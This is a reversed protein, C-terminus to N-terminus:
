QALRLNPIQGQVRSIALRETLPFGRDKGFRRAREYLNRAGTPDGRVIMHYDGHSVLIDGFYMMAGLGRANEIWDDPSTDPDYLWLYRPTFPPLNRSWWAVSKSRYYNRLAVDLSMDFRAARQQGSLAIIDVLLASIHVHWWHTGLFLGDRLWWRPDLRISVMELHEDAKYLWKEAKDFEQCQFYLLAILFLSKTAGLHDKVPKFYEESRRAYDLCAQEDGLEYAIEQRMVLARGVGMQGRERVKSSIAQRLLHESQRQSLKAVSVAQEPEGAIVYADALDLYMISLIESPAQADSRARDVCNQLQPIARAPDYRLLQVRALAWDYIYSRSLFQFGTKWGLQRLQRTARLTLDLDTHQALVRRHSEFVIAQDEPHLKLVSDLQQLVDLTPHREGSEIRSVYSRDIGIEAALGQQSLGAAKRYTQIIAGISREPDARENQM